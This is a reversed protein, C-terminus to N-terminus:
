FSCSHLFAHSLAYPCTAPAVIQSMWTVSSMHNPRYLSLFPEFESRLLSANSPLPILEFSVSAPWDSKVPQCPEATEVLYNAPSPLLDPLALVQQFELVSM